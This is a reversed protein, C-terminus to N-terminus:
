TLSKWLEVDELKTKIANAFQTALAGDVLRHDASLTIKMVSRVVIQGKRVAPQELTSSVALIAVEGPNIIATFNEVGMMGMNSVTFTSGTMEDPLLKGDRARAALDAATDHLEKLGLTEANRIVPVVLGDAVSTALGLHVSSHWWTSKGDTSSNVSPFEQLTLVVAELVFDTVTYPQNRAKLEKRFSQLDTMDVAVTVFFHPATVVSQTLRQAIIQRMKSMAKPRERLACEIDAVMIRGGDGTGKVTLIDVKQKIALAKAAPSIRLAAHNHAAMHAQVDKEVIRGNPGSGRIKAPDIASHEALARARPSIFLRAPAAPAVLGTAPSGSTLPPSSPVGALPPGAPGASQAAAKTPGESTSPRSPSAKATPAVAPAAAAPPVIAPVAEGAQGIFAVTAGVPAAAGEEVVVKLIAGEYFSEVELVAKETEIEFLIDGKKVKDGEKCRWKVITCEEVSQGMKPM